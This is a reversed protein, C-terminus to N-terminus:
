SWVFDVKSSKQAQTQFKGMKWLFEFIKKCNKPYKIVKKM